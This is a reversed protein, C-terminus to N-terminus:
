LFRGGAIPKERGEGGCRASSAANPADTTTGSMGTEATRSDRFRGKATEGAYGIVAGTVRKVISSRASRTGKDTLYDPHAKLADAVAGDVIRWLQGYAASPRKQMLTRRYRPKM